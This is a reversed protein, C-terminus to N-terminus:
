SLLNQNLTSKNIGKNIDTNKGAHFGEQHGSQSSYSGGKERFPSTRINEKVYQEVKNTLTLAMTTIQQNSKEMEKKQLMLKVAVGNVFGTLYGRIYSNKKEKVGNDLSSVWNKDYNEWASKSLYRVKNSLQDVIYKTIEVNHPEGVLMLTLINKTNWRGPTYVKKRWDMYERTVNGQSDFRAPPEGMIDYMNVETYIVKCFNFEAIVRYLKFMWKGENKVNLDKHNLTDKNVKFNDENGMKLSHIELNYRVMLEHARLAAQEAENINGVDRHGKEAKLLKKIKNLINDPVEKNEM